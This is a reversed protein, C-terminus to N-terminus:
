MWKVKWNKRKAAQKSRREETRQNNKKKRKRRRKKKKKKKKNKAERAKGNKLTCICRAYPTVPWVLQKKKKKSWPFCCRFCYFNLDELLSSSLSFVPLPSFSSLSFLSVPHAFLIVLSNCSHLNQSRFICGWWVKNYMWHPSHTLILSLSFSHSLSLFQKKLSCILEGKKGTEHNVKRKRRKSTFHTSAGATRLQLPPLINLSWSSSFESHFELEVGRSLYFEFPERGREGKHRYNNLEM